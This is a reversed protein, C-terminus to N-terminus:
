YVVMKKNMLTKKGAIKLLYVGSRLNGKQIPLRLHKNVQGEFMKKGAKGSMDNISITIEDSQILKL